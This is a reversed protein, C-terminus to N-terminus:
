YVRRIRRVRIPQKSFLVVRIIQEPSFAPYTFQIDAANPDDSAIGYSYEFLRVPEPLDVKALPGDCEVRLHTPQVTTDTQLTVSMVYPIQPDQSTLPHEFFRIHEIQPQPQQHSSAVTWKEGLEELRQNIWDSPPQETGALLGSSLNDYSLIYEQRLMALIKARRKQEEINPTKTLKPTIPTPRTMAGNKVEVPQTLQDLKKGIDEKTGDIKQQLKNIQAKLDEQAVIGRKAAVGILVLSAFGFVGVIWAFPKRNQTLSLHVGLWALFLNIAGLIVAIVIDTAM